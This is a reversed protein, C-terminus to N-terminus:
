IGGGGVGGRVEKLTVRFEQFEESNEGLFDFLHSPSFASLFCPHGPCKAATSLVMKNYQYNKSIICFKVM